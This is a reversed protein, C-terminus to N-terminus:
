THSVPLSNRQNEGQDGSEVNHSIAFAAHKCSVHFVGFVLVIRVDGLLSHLPFSPYSIVECFHRVFVYEEDYFARTVFQVQKFNLFLAELFERRSSFGYIIVLVDSSLGVAKSVCVCLLCIFLLGGVRFFFLVGVPSSGSYTSWFSVKPHNGAQEEM